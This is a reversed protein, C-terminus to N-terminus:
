EASFLMTASLMFTFSCMRFREALSRFYNKSKESFGGSVLIYFDYYTNKQANLLISFITIYMYYVYVDDKTAFAVAVNNASKCDSM